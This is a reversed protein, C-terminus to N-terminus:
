SLGWINPGSKMSISLYSRGWPTKLLQLNELTLGRMFDPNDVGMSTGQDGASAVVGPVFSAIKFGRRAAFFYTQALRAGASPTGAGPNPSLAYNLTTSGLVANVTVPRQPLANYANPSIGAIAVQDGPSVNSTDSITLQALGNAWSAATVPYSQDVVHEVLMHGGLNFVALQYPDWVGVEGSLEALQLDVVNLSQKLTYTLFPSGDPLATAPVGM